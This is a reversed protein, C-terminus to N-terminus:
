IWNMQVCKVEDVVIDTQYITLSVSSNFDVDTNM